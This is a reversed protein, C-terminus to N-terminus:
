ATRKRQCDRCDARAPWPREHVGGGSPNALALSRWPMSWDGGLARLRREPGAWVRHTGPMAEGLLAELALGAVLSVSNTLEVAGYPQFVAGCAPEQFVAGNEPWATVTLRARGHTDLGCQLCGGGQGIVVSHGACAHAEIWGYVVPPARGGALHEANLAGEASWAGIASVVLDGAFVAADPALDQWRMPFAEVATHPLAQQIRTKLAAAKDHNLQKAGLPHRGIIGGTMFDPDVLRLRGVGAQALAIAVPAGLSGCGLVTVTADRLSPQRPDQDRGHVWAPDVRQVSSRAAVASALLRPGVLEAPAHGPRFGKQLAAPRTGGGRTRGAQPSLLVAGMAVGNATRAGILAVPKDAQAGVVARLLDADAGEALSLLDTGSRPYAPPRPPRDRWILVADEFVHKGGDDGNIADLWSQLEADQDAVLYFTKGRWLRIRRSPGRPAILSRVPPAGETRDWDWYSLFESEFDGDLGGTLLEEVLGSAEGLLFSVVGGPDEPSVEGAGTLLCLVGDKDVHPWTLFDPRDVLAVRPETRPFARDALVDLRRIRDPFKVDLRWGAVPARSPYSELESATLRRGGLGAVLGDVARQAQVHDSDPQLAHGEPM